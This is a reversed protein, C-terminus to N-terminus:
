QPLRPSTSHRAVRGQEASRGQAVPDVVHGCQVCRWGWVEVPGSDLLVEPLQEPVLLGGCRRCGDHDNRKEDPSDHGMGPRRVSGAPASSIPKALRVRYLGPTEQSLQVRGERSLLDVESFIQNWSLGPCAAILQEFLCGTGQAAALVEMLLDATTAKRAMVDGGRPEARGRIDSVSQVNFALLDSRADEQGVLILLM